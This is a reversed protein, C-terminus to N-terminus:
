SYNVIKKPEDKATLKFLPQMFRRLPSVIMYIYGLASVGM